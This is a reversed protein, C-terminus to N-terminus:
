LNIDVGGMGDFYNGANGYFLFVNGYGGIGMNYNYSTQLSINSVAHQYSAYLTGGPNTFIKQQISINTVGSPLKVSTGIGNSLFKNNSSYETGNSSTIKTTITNNNLGTNYFRVGIVDYSRTTPNTLWTLNTIVTCVDNSCAKSISLRKSKTSYSPSRLLGNGVDDYISKVGVTRSNIDLDSIWNYDDNTMTEFFNPGYFSNIFQFEKETLQVGNTNIYPSISSSAFVEMSNFLSICCLISLFLIKRKM